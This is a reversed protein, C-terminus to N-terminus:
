LLFFLLQSVVNTYASCLHSIFRAQKRHRPGWGYFHYLWNFCCMIFHVEPLTQVIIVIDSAASTWFSASCLSFGPQPTRARDRLEPFVREFRSIRRCIDLLWVKNIKEGTQDFTKTMMAILLNLQLIDTLVIWTIYLLNLLRDPIFGSCTEDEIPRSMSIVESIGDGLSLAFLSYAIDTTTLILLQCDSSNTASESALTSGSGGKTTKRILSRYSGLSQASLEQLLYNYSSYITSISMLFAAFLCTYITGFTVIDSSLIELTSLVLTGFSKFPKVLNLLNAFLFLAALVTFNKEQGLSQSDCGAGAAVRAWAMGVFFASILVCCISEANQYLFGFIERYSIKLDGDEDIDSLYIRRQAWASRLMSPVGYFVLVLQLKGSYSNHMSDWGCRADPMDVMPAIMDIEDVSLINIQRNAWALLFLLFVLVNPLISQGLYVLGYVNTWKSIMCREICDTASAFWGPPKRIGIVDVVGLFEADGDVPKDGNVEDRDQLEQIKKSAFAHDREYRSRFKPHQVLNICACRSQLAVLLPRLRDASREIMITDNVNNNTDIHSFDEKVLTLTGYEWVSRVFYEQHIHKFMDWLGFCATLSLPSMGDGNLRNKDAGNEVLWKFTQKSGTWAALHLLTNGYEDQRNLIKRRQLDKAAESSTSNDINNSECEKRVLM